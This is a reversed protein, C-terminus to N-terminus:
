ATSISSAPVTRASAAVAPRLGRSSRAGRKASRVGPNAFRGAPFRHREGGESLLVRSEWPQLTANVAKEM